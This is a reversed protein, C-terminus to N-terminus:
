QHIGDCFVTHLWCCVRWEGSIDRKAGRWSAQTEFQEVKSNWKVSKAPKTVAGAVDPGFQQPVGSLAPHEDPLRRSINERLDSGDRNEDPSRKQVRGEDPLRRSIAERQDEEGLDGSVARKKGRHSRRAESSGGGRGMPAQQDNQPQPPRSGDDASSLSEVTSERLHSLEGLTGSQM